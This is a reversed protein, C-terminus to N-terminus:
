FNTETIFEGSARLRDVELVSGVGKVLELMYHVSYVADLVCLAVELLVRRM